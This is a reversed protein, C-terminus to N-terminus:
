SESITETQKQTMNPDYKLYKLYFRMRTRQVHIVIDFRFMSVNIIYVVSIYSYTYVVYSCSLRACV